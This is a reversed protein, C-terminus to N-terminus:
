VAKTSTFFWLHFSSVKRNLELLTPLNNARGGLGTQNEHLVVGVRYSAAIDSDDQGDQGPSPPASLTATKQPPSYTESTLGLLQEYNARTSSTQLTSHRMAMVKNGAAFM